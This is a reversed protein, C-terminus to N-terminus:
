YYYKITNGNKDSLKFISYKELLGNLAIPLAVNLLMPQSLMLNILKIDYRNILNLYESVLEIAGNTDIQNNNLANIIMQQKNM